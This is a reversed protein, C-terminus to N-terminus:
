NYSFFFSKLKVGDYISQKFKTKFYNSRISIPNQFKRFSSSLYSNNNYNFYDSYFSDNLNKKEYKFKDNFLNM